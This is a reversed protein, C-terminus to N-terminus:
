TLKAEKMAIFDHWSAETTKGKGHKVRFLSFEEAWEDGAAGAGQELAYHYADEAAAEEMQWRREDEETPEPPEDYYHNDWGLLEGAENTIPSSYPGPFAM